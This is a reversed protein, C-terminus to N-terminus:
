LSERLPLVWKIYKTNYALINYVQLLGPM